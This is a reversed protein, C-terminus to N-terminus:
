DGFNPDALRSWTGKNNVEFIAMIRGPEDYPLPQLLVGYVVSFVATSTGIALALTVVAIVTLVPNRCLVRAAHRLDQLITEMPRVGRPRNARYKAIIKSVLMNLLPTKTKM